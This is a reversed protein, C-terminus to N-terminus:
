LQTVTIKTPSKKNPMTLLHYYAKEVAELASGARVEIIFSEKLAPFCGGTYWEFCVDFTSM